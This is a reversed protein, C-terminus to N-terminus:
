GRQRKLIRYVVRRLYHEFTESPNYAVAQEHRWANVYDSITHRLEPTAKEWRGALVEGMTLTALRRYLPHEAGGPGIGFLGSSAFISWEGLLQNLAVTVEPSTLDAQRVGIEESAVAVNSLTPDLSAMGLAPKSSPEVKSSFDTTTETKVWGTADPTQTAQQEVLISSKEWEVRDSPQSFESDISQEGDDYDKNPLPPLNAPLDVFPVRPLPTIEPEPARTVPALAEDVQSPFGVEPPETEGPTAPNPIPRAENPAEPVVTAVPEPTPPTTTEPTAAPQTPLGTLIVLHAAELSQMATDLAAGGGASAKMAGLLAAMYDRGAANSPDMLTAPNGVKTNVLRKIEAIRTKHEELTKFGTAPPTSPPSVEPAPAAVQAPVTEPTSRVENVAPPIVTESPPASFAQPAVVVNPIPAVPEPAPPETPTIIPESVPPPPTSIVASPAPTPAPTAEVPPLEPYTGVHLPMFTPTPRQSRSTFFGGSSKAPAPQSAITVVPASQKQETSAEKELVPFRKITAEIEKLLAPDGGRQAYQLVLDRFEAYATDSLGAERGRQLVETLGQWSRLNLPRPVAQDNKSLAAGGPARRSDEAM